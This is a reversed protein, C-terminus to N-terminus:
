NDWGMVGVLMVEKETRCSATPNASASAGDRANACVGEPGGAAVGPNSKEPTMKPLQCSLLSEAEFALRPPWAGFRNSTPRAYRVNRMGAPSLPAIRMVVSM